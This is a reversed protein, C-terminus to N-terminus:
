HLPRRFVSEDVHPQMEEKLCSHWEVISRSLEQVDMGLDQLIEAPKSHEIFELPVGISHIPISMGADRFIESITSAIGGHRIGNEIVVVSRYAAAMAVLSEPLPKVWSPDIVTV